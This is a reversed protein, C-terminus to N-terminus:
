ALRLQDPNKPPAPMWMGTQEYTHFSGDDALWVNGARKARDFARAAAALAARGQAESDTM